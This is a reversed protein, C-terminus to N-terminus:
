DDFLINYDREAAAECWEEPIFKWQHLATPNLYKHEEIYKIMYYRFDKETTAIIREKLKQHSIGAGKTLLEGGGNGRYSNVVVKYEKDMSFPTGDAMSIINIKDGKKRRVDVTYIIGAASDFNFSFNKLANFVRKKSKSDRFKLLNDTPSKMRNTWMDYSMELHKKIEKGSLRITYLQNEFKYLKFMDSVLVDGQKIEADFILPSAFSVDAGTIELQLSHIFDIFSSSGFYANRTTLANEFVGIKKDVFTKIANFQPSFHHMFSASPNYQDVSVLAGSISKEYVKDNRVKFAVDVEAVIQGNDEPNVVLITDGMNNIIKKCERIHDHGIMVVDFGRVTYAVNLSANDKYQRGLISEYQGSHFLGIILDPKEEKKLIRMWKKACKEMGEFYLGKWLQESLWFPVASTIMGLVAVKVGEREIIIYPTLFPKGTSKDIINAGLIPFNCDDVWRQFTSRGVEIDHNGANGADYAMYNLMDACLHSSVTDIYNYYYVAPQGQLIDGNDLLVFNNGYENRRAEVLSHIRALSGLDSKQTIFNFPFFNGHIDSTQIFKMKVEREQAYAFRCLICLLCFIASRKM